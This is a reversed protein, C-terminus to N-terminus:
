HKVVSRDCDFTVSAAGCKVTVNFHLMTSTIASSSEPKLVLRLSLFHAVVDV